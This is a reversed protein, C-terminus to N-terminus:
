WEIKYMIEGFQNMRFKSVVFGLKTIQSWTKLQAKHTGKLYTNVVHLESFGNEAAKLIRNTIYEMNAKVLHSEDLRSDTITRAQEATIYAGM